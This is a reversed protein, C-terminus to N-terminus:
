PFLLNVIKIFKARKDYKSWFGDFGFKLIDKELKDTMEQLGLAIIKMTPLQEKLHNLDTNKSKGKGSLSFDFVLLDPKTETVLDEVKKLESTKGVLNFGLVSLTSAMAELLTENSEAIIVTKSM